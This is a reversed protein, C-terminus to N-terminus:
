FVELNRMRNMIMVNKKNESKAKKYAEIAEEKTLWIHGPGNDQFKMIAAGSGNNKQEYYIVLYTNDVM